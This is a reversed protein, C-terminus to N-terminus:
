RVNPLNFYRFVYSTMELKLDPAFVKLEPNTKLVKVLNPSRRGMLYIGNFHATYHIIFEPFDEPRIPSGCIALKQAVDQVHHLLYFKFDKLLTSDLNIELVTNLCAMLKTFLRRQCHKAVLTTLADPLSTKSTLIEVLEELWAELESKYLELFIEEKSSFFNYLTGKSFDLQEAIERVAVDDYDKLELMQAAARMIQHKKHQREAESYAM